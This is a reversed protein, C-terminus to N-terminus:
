LLRDKDTNILQRCLNFGVCQKLKKRYNETTANEGNEIKVEWYLLIIEMEVVAGTIEWIMNM